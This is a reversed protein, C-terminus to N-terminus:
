GGNGEANIGLISSRGPVCGHGRGPHLGSRLDYRRHIRRVCNRFGVFGVVSEALIQVHASKFGPLDSQNRDMGGIAVLAHDLVSRAGAVVPHVKGLSKM